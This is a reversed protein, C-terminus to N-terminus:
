LSEALGRQLAQAVLGNLGQPHAGARERLQLVLEAPLKCAFAVLGAAADQRRQERRDPAAAALGFRQPVAAGRRRGEIKSELRRALDSKKLSM